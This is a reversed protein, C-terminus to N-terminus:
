DGQRAAAAPRDQRTRYLFFRVAAGTLLLSILGAVAVTLACLKFIVEPELKAVLRSTANMDVVPLSLPVLLLLPLLVLLVSMMRHRLAFGLGERFSGVVGRENLLLVLPVYLLLAQVLTSLGFQLAFSRVPSGQLWNRLATRGLGELGWQFAMSVLAAVIGIVILQGARRLAVSLSAGIPPAQALFTERFILVGWGVTVSGLVASLVLDIRASLMPLALFFNPYQLVGPGPFWTLLPIWVYGWPKQYFHASTWLAFLEVLVYVLFPLIVVPRRLGKLTELWVWLYTNIAQIPNLTVELAAPFPPAGVPPVALTFEKSARLHSM